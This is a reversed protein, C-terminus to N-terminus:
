ATEETEDLTSFAAIARVMEPDSPINYERWHKKRSPDQAAAEQDRRARIANGIVAPFWGWSNPGKRTGPECRRTCRHDLIERIDRLPVGYAAELCQQVIQPPPDEQMHECMTRRRGYSRLVDSMWAREEKSDCCLGASASPKLRQTQNGLEKGTMERTSSVHSHRDTRNTRRYDSTNTRFTRSETGSQTPAPNVWDTPADNVQPYTCSAGVVGEDTRTGAKILKAKVRSNIPWTFRKRRHVEAGSDVKLKSSEVTIDSGQAIKQVSRRVTGRDLNTRKELETTGIKESLKGWGHTKRWIVLLTRLEGLTRVGPMAHDIFDLIAVYAAFAGIERASSQSASNTM